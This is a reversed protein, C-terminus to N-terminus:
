YTLISGLLPPKVFQTEEIEMGLYIMASISAEHHRTRVAVGAKLAKAEEEALKRRAENISM